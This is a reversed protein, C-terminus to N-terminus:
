AEALFHIGDLAWSQAGVISGASFAGASSISVYEFSNTAQDGIVFSRTAAPRFGAPLTFAPNSQTGTGSIIGKMHVMGTADKWYAPALGSLGSGWNVNPSITNLMSSPQLPASQSGLTLLGQYDFRAKNTGANQIDLLFGASRTQTSGLGVDAGGTFAAARNGILGMAGGTNTVAVTNGSSDGIAITAGTAGTINLTSPLSLANSSITGFASLVGSTSIQLLGAAAPLATPLTLSYASIGAPCTLTVGNASAGTDRILVPGCDMTAAVNTASRWTFTASGFSASATGSPLGSIGGLSTASLTAGSTIQVAQGSSNMWYLNGGSDVLENIDTAATPTTTLNSLRLARVGTINYATGSTTMPLDANINLGSVPVQIGKGSTHDHSDITTLATNLTSAWGPGTSVSPTPLTLAMYTTAM